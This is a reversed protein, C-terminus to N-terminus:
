GAFRSAVFEANRRLYASEGSTAMDVFQNAGNEVAVRLRAEVEDPTGAILFRDLLYQKAGLRDALDTYDNKEDDSTPGYTAVKWSAALEKVAAEHQEPVLKGKLTSRGLNHTPIGIRWANDRMAAGPRSDLHIGWTVWWVDIETVDRGAASAGQALLQLCERIVEPSTGLGMIVGDAVEGALRISRSGHASLYIPVPRPKWSLFVPRGEHEATGHTFLSKLTVIYERLRDIPSATHGLNYVGSDGSGIGLYVRGPALESLTAAAAATVVPHRTLPNTVSTGINIRSTKSAIAALTV